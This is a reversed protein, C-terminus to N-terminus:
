KYELKRILKGTAVYLTNGSVLIGSPRNFRAATGIGDKNAATGDGAITTVPKNASALDIARIRHNNIDAVYLTNGSLALGFPTNLQANTGTTNNAFGATGSGALTSVRTAAATAGITVKRIRHNLGDAVYLLNGPAAVIGVPYRFQATTGLGDNHGETRDGAITGVQATSTNITRISHATEDAVYLTAGIQAIKSPSGFGATNGIGDTGISGGGALTSVHWAKPKTPGGSSDDPPTCAYLM